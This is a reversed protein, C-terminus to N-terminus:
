KSDFVAADFPRGTLVQRHYYTEFTRANSWGAAKLIDAVTSGHEAAASVAAGRVSHPKFVSTDIGANCMVKRMWRGITQSSVAKHPKILSVFLQNDHRLDSTREIYEKLVRYICIRIDPEYAKFKISLRNHGPRAQKFNGDIHFTYADDEIWMKDIRLLWLSQCRQASVLAALMVCKYTLDTLSLFHVQPQRRFFALVINVDWTSNYRPLSPRSGAVGKMFRCILPHQGLGVSSESCNLTSLASRATNLASYRAGSDFLEALFDLVFNVRPQLHSISRVSCFKIWKNIYVTYQKQTSGRWSNMILETARVSTVIQKLNERVCAMGSTSAEQRASSDGGGQVPPVCRRPEM